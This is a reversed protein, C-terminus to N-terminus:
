GRKRKLFPIVMPVRRKYEVYQEGFEKVLKVEEFRIGIITYLIIIIVAILNSLHPMLLFLGVLFVFTSIYLPHRVFKHMGTTELVPKRDEQIERIGSLQRFYKLICNVMGALGIFVIVPAAWNSIVPNVFLNRSAVSSHFVLLGVLSVLAFINYGLRYGSTTLGLM